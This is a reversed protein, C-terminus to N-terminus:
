ARSANARARAASLTAWSSALSPEAAWCLEVQALLFTKARIPSAMLASLRPLCEDEPDDLSACFSGIGAEFPGSTYVSDASARDLKQLSEAIRPLLTEPFAIYVTTGRRVFGELEFPLALRSAMGALDAGDLPRGLWALVPYDFYARASAAGCEAWFSRRIEAIARSVNGPPMMVLAISSFTDSTGLAMFDYYVPHFSRYLFSPVMIGLTSRKAFFSVAITDEQGPTSLM